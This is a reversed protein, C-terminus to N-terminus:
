RAGGPRLASWRAALLPQGCRTAVAAGKGALASWGSADLAERLLADAQATEGCRLTSELLPELTSAWERELLATDTERRLARLAAPGDGPPTDRLSQPADDWAAQFHEKLARWDQPTRATAFLLRLAREPPWQERPTLPAPKLSALLPRLAVGGRAQAMWIWLDWLAESGPEQRLAGEVAPQWRQYLGQLTPSAADLPRGERSWALDLQRWIGARFALDLEQAFTGWAELDQVPGLARAASLDARAPADADRLYGALDGRELREKLAPVQVGMFRQAAAEGRQRLLALLRERAELSEPHDKLYARLEKVRDHFGARALEQAFAAAAPLTEGRALVADGEGLLLWQAKPELHLRKVLDAEAGGGLAYSRVPVQFAKLEEQQLLATFGESLAHGGKADLVCLTAPTAADLADRQLLVRLVATQAGLTASLLAPLLLARVRM